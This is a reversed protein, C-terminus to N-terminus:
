SAGTGERPLRLTFVTGTELTSEIDITGNHAVVIQKVIFLGLGLGHPTAPGRSFPDFIVPVMESRIPPGENKVKVVVEDGTGDFSIYVPARPDGHQLANALLNSLAQAIRARDWRGALNGKLQLDVTPTPWAVRTEDVVERAAEGLDSPSRSVPLKGEAQVRSFDLLSDIMETMREAARQVIRVKGRVFESNEQRLMAAAATTVASMPNRLDHGLVAMMRERYGIAESLRQQTQKEDTIDTKSGILGAIKGRADRLPEMSQRYIRVEGGITLTLEETVNVGQELVRRKLTKLLAADDPPFVDDDTKGEVTAPLRPGYFWRYRLSEDQEFVATRAGALSIRFRRESRRVDRLLLANDM